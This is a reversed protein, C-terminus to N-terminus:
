EVVGKRKKLAAAAKGGADQKCTTVPPNDILASLLMNYSIGNAASVADIMLSLIAPIFEPDGKTEMFPYFMENGKAVFGAMIMSKTGEPLVMLRGDKDAQALEQVRELPMADEYDALRQAADIIPLYESTYDLRETHLKNIIEIAKDSLREM